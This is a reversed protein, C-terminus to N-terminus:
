AHSGYAAADPVSRVRALLKATATIRRYVEVGLQSAPVIGVALLLFPDSVGGSAAAPGIAANM